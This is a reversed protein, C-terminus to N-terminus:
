KVPVGKFFLHTAYLKLAKSKLTFVKAIFAVSGADPAQLLCPCKARADQAAFFHNSNCFITDQSFSTCCEALLFSLPLSKRSLKMLFFQTLKWIWVYARANGSRTFSNYFSIYIRTFEAKVPKKMFPQHHTGANGDHHEGM